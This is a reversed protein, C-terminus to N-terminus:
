VGRCAVTVIDGRPSLDLVLTFQLAQSWNYQLQCYLGIPVQSEKRAGVLRSHQDVSLKCSHRLVFYTLIISLSYFCVAGTHLMGAAADVFGSNLHRFSHRAATPALEEPEANVVGKFTRGRFKVSVQM